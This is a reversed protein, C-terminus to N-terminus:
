KINSLENLLTQKDQVGVMRKVETGDKFIILTPINRVNYQSAVTKNVDVDLKSIKFKKGVENAIEEIIPAQRRCPGCWVAWFDVLTIGKKISKQFNADTLILVKSNTPKDGTQSFTKFSLTILIVSLFTTILTNKRM